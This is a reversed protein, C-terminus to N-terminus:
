IFSRGFLRKFEERSHEREFKQQMEAQLRERLERNFHVGRCVADNGRHHARCLYVVMGYEESVRRNATGEFVHHRELGRTMGCVYCRREAM